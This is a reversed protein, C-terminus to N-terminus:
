PIYIHPIGFLRVRGPSVTFPGGRFPTILPSIIDTKAYIRRGNKESFFSREGHDLVLVSLDPPLPQIERQLLIRTMAIGGEYAIVAQDRDDRSIIRYEGPALIKLNGCPTIFWSGCQRLTVWRHGHSEMQPREMGAEGPVAEYHHLLPFDEFSKDRMERIRALISDLLPLDLGERTYRRAYREVLAKLRLLKETGEITNHGSYISALVDIRSTLERYVSEFDGYKLNLVHLFHHIEQHLDEMTQLSGSWYEAHREVPGPADTHVGDAQM